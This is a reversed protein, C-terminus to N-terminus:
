SLVRARTRGAIRTGIALGRHVGTGASSTITSRSRGSAGARTRAGKVAGADAPVTSIPHNASTSDENKRENQNRYFFVDFRNERSAAILLQVPAPPPVFLQAAIPDVQVEGEGPAKV